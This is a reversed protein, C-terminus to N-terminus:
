ETSVCKRQTFGMISHISWLGLDMAKHIKPLSGVVKTTPNTQKLKQTVVRAGEKKNNVNERQRTTKNWIFWNIDSKEAWEVRRKEGM